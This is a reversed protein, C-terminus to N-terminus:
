IFYFLGKDCDSCKFPKLKLHSANIHKKLNHKFKTKYFCELCNFFGDIRILLTENNETEKGNNFINKRTVKGQDKLAKLHNILKNKEIERENFENILEQEEKFCEKQKLEEKNILKSWVETQGDFFDGQIQLYELEDRLLELDVGEM